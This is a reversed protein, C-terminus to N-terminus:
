YHVVQHPKRLLLFIPPSSNVQITGLLEFGHCKYFPINKPNSSELYAFKNDRNCLQLAHEMLASGFRKGHHYPDIGLLPLYGHPENPHFTSMKEFVKPGDRKADDSGTSQLLEILVDVDPHLNPPLWLAAGYYNGVYHFTKHAFAKGGFANVFVPFHLLYKDTDTWVWRTAPDAVFAM